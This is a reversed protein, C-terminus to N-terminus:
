DTDLSANVGAALELLAQEITRQQDYMESLGWGINIRFCDRYLRRTTFQAGFQIDIHAQDIFANLKINDLSPVQVWLVLGGSPVSIASGEPLNNLLLHRYAYANSLIIKRISQLHKRYEGLTIFSTLSAQMLANQGLNEAAYQGVITDLYRGASCWGIRLGSALTKSVSSCWLVYGKTDWYKIPLPYINEYGLEGYVDDEIIPVCYKNALEALRKKQEISLSLGHPNMYASSFLAAKIEKNKLKQEFQQIDVGNSNCPIEIVKRSLSSLLKLLGNFCPSSIAIADGPQTTVLLAMRIADICGNTIVLGDADVAFGIGRYNEAIAQRLEHLGQPDSYTHLLEDSRQVTRKISRKLALLPIHAPSLQSIGFPGSEFDSNRYDSSDLNNSLFRSDSRFQPQAPIDGQSLPTSVFFGSKPHAVIWGMQELHRYSNLATTMSIDLQKTLQRLSPLRQGLTIKQGQIDMIIQEAITKYKM